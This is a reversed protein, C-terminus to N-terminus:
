RAEHYLEIQYGDPDCVRASRLPGHDEPRALIKVGETSLKAVWRDVEGPESLEFGFHFSPTAFPKGAFLTLLFGETEIFTVDGERRVSLGLRDRYFRESRALDKVTFALHTIRLSM